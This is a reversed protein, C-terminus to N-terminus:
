QKKENIKMYERKHIQVYNKHQNKKKQFKPYTKKQKERFYCSEHELWVLGILMQFNFSLRNVKQM